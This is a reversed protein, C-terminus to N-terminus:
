SGNGVLNNLRQFPSIGGLAAHPRTTNYADIWPGIAQDRPIARDGSVVTGRISRPM